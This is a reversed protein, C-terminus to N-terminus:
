CRRYASKIKKQHRGEDVTWLWRFHCNLLVDGRKLSLFNWSWAAEDLDDSWTVVLILARMNPFVLSAFNLIGFHDPFNFCLCCFAAKMVYNETQSFNLLSESTPSIERYIVFLLINFFNKYLKMSHRKELSKRVHLISSSHIYLFGPHFRYLLLHM